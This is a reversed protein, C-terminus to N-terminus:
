LACGQCKGKVEGFGVRPAWRLADPGDGAWYRASFWRCYAWAQPSSMPMLRLSVPSPPFTLLCPLRHMNEVRSLDPQASASICARARAQICSKSSNRGHAANATHIGTCSANPSKCTGLRVKLLRRLFSFRAASNKILRRCDQFVIMCGLVYTCLPAYSTCAEHLASFLLVLRRPHWCLVAGGIFYWWCWCYCCFCLVCCYMRCMHLSSTVHTPFSM